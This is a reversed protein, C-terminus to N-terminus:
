KNLLAMGSPQYRDGHVQIRKIAARIEDNDEKTVEVNLAGWNEELRKVSTTGPIPIFDEGQYLVWALCLQAPTCNKKAAIREFERAIDLNREFNEGQFRPLTKRFDDEPIDEFKKFKGALFGKGLPSFAVISIGLERCTDLVGNTEIDLTWPSYEMQIASIPHIKHARRLTAASCESLGIYKIKGENVLKVLANMTDEIPTTPDMRHMYYLDITPLELRSLSKAIAAEVYEPKGNPGQPTVGFKSALFVEAKSDKLFKGLVIENDGYRDATDWFTCGLEVARALVKSAHDVPNSYGFSLGICGLGLASVLPGNKGLRRQPIATSM